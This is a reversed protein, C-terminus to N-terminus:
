MPGSLNVRDCDLRSSCWKRELRWRKKKADAIEDNYWLANPHVVISRTKVPALEDLIGRLVSDYEHVLSLLSTHNEMSLLRSSAIKNNFTEHDFNKLRRSLVIRRQNTQKELNLSFCIPKHDSIPQKLVCVNSVHLPSCNDRTIVLDLIHGDRHTLSVVHQKLGFSDLITMFRVAQTNETDDIHLNFDGMILLEDSCVILDM